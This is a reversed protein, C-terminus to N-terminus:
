ATSPTLFMLLPFTAICSRARMRKREYAKEILGFEPMVGIATM